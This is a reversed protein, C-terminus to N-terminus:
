RRRTSASLGTASSTAGELAAAGTTIGPRRRITSTVPRISSNARRVATRRGDSMQDRLLRRQLSFRVHVIAGDRNIEVNDLLSRHRDDLDDQSLRLIAVAGEALDVVSSASAEDQMTLYAEGELATDTFRVSV